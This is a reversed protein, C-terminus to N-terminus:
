PAGQGTPRTDVHERWRKLAPNNAVNKKRLEDRALLGAKEVFIRGPLGKTPTHKGDCVIVAPIQKERVWLSIATQTANDTGILDRGQKTTIYGEPREGVSKLIHNLPVFDKRQDKRHKAAIPEPAAPEPLPPPPAPAVQEEPVAWGNVKGEKALVRGARVFARVLMDELARSQTISEAIRALDDADLLEIRM